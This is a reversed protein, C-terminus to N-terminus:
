EDGNEEEDFVHGSGRLVSVIGVALRSVRDLRDALEGILESDDPHRQLLADVLEPTELGRPGEETAMM